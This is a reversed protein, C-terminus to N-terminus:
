ELDVFSQCFCIRRATNVISKWVFRKSRKWLSRRRDSRALNPLVEAAVPPVTGYVPSLISLEVSSRFSVAHEQQPLSRLGVTTIRRDVALDLSDILFPGYYRELCKPTEAHVDMEATVLVAPSVPPSAILVLRQYMPSDTTLEPSSRFSKTFGRQRPFWLDTIKRDVALDLWDITSRVENAYDLLQSYKLSVTYADM